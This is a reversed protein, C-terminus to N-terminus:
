MINRTFEDVIQDAFLFSGRVGDGPTLFHVVSETGSHGVAFYAESPMNEWFYGKNNENIGTLQIEADKIDKMAM